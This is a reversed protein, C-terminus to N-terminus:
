RHVQAKSQKLMETERGLKQRLSRIQQLLAGSKTETEALQGALHQNTKHALELEARQKADQAAAAQAADARCQLVQSELQKVLEERQQVEKVDLINANVGVECMEVPASPPTTSTGAESVALRLPSTGTTTAAPRMSTLLPTILSPSTSTNFDRTLKPKPTAALAVEFQMQDTLRQLQHQHEFFLEARQNQLPPYAVGISSVFIIVCVKMCLNSVAFVDGWGM